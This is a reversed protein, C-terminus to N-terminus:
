LALYRAGILKDLTDEFKPIPYTEDVTNENNCYDVAVRYKEKNEEPASKKRVTWLPSKYSSISDIIIVQTKLNGLEGRIHQRLVQPCRREKVYTVREQKLPYEHVTRGM